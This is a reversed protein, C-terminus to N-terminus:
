EAFEGQERELRLTAIRKPALEFDFAGDQRAPAGLDAQERLDTQAAHAPFSARLRMQEQTQHWERDWHTHSIVRYHRM